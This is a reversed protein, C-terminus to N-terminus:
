PTHGKAETVAAAVAALAAREVRMDYMSDIIDILRAASREPVPPLVARGEDVRRRAVMADLTEQKRRLLERDSLSM